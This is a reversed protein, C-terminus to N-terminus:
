TGTLQISGSERSTCLNLTINGAGIPKSINQQVFNCNTITCTGAGALTWSSGFVENQRFVCAGTQGTLNFTVADFENYHSDGGGTYGTMNISSGNKCENYRWTGNANTLNWNAATHVKNRYFSGTFGTLNVTANRIDNGHVPATNGYTVTLTAGEVWNNYYATNGWDFNSVETGNLGKCTNMRNDTLEYVVATDIDYM